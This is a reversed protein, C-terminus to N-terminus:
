RRLSNLNYQTVLFGNEDTRNWEKIYPDAREAIVLWSITDTSEVNECTITLTANQITGLLKDFGTLNQLFYQPNACLAEFTGDDMAGASSFTCQKNINIIATGAELQATGRYILDCRPAEISSHVLHRSTDQYLPHQMDFTKGPAAIQGNIQIASTPNTYGIGVNGNPLLVVAGNSHVIQNDTGYGMMSVYPTTMVSGVPAVYLGPNYATVNAGSANLIISNAIQNQQGAQNGIAIANQGQNQYGAQYGLAISYGIQTNNLTYTTTANTVTIYSGDYAMACSTMATSGLTINIFTVGYDSSYYVNNTTGATVIVM